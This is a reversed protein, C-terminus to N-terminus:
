QNNYVKKIGALEALRWVDKEHGDCPIQEPTLYRNLMELFWERHCGFPPMDNYFKMAQELGGEVAFHIADEPPAVSFSPSFRHAHLGWFMDEPCGKRIFKKLFYNIDSFMGTHKLLKLHYRLVKGVFGVNNRIYEWYERPDEKRESQLVALCASIRRLSFGGNGVGTWEGSENCWPAGIYDYKKECWMSLQDSFVFADLQYLLMYEYAEFRRYFDLSLLLESYNELSGFYYDPFREIFFEHGVFNFKGFDFTEPGVLVLPYSSLLEVCRSLSLLETATLETKYVPIIVVAQQM